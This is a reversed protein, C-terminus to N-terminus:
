YRSPKRGAIRLRHAKFYSHDSARPRILRLSSPLFFLFCFVCYMGQRHIVQKVEAKDAAVRLISGAATAEHCQGKQLPLYFLIIKSMQWSCSKTVTVQDLSQFFFLIITRLGVNKFPDKSIVDTSVPTVNEGFPWDISAPNLRVDFAVAHM